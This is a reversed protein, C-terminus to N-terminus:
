DYCSTRAPNPDPLGTPLIDRLYQYNEACFFEPGQGELAGREAFPRDFGSDMLHNPRDQPNHFQEGGPDALGVSHAIEHAMTGGILNGM